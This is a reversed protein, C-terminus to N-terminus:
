AMGDEEREGVTPPGSPYHVPSPIALSRVTDRKGQGRDEPSRGGKPRRCPHYLYLSVTIWVM